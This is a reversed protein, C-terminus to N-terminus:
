LRRNKEEDEVYEILKDTRKMRNRVWKTSYIALGAFWIGSLFILYSGIARLLEEQPTM